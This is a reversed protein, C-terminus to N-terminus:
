EGKEFIDGLGIIRISDDSRGDGDDMVEPNELLEGTLRCKEGSDLAECYMEYDYELTADNNGEPQAPSIGTFIFHSCCSNMILEFSVPLHKRVTRGISELIIIYKPQDNDKLHLLVSDALVRYLRGERVAVKYYLTKLLCEMWTADRRKSSIGYKKALSKILVPTLSSNRYSPITYIESINKLADRLCCHEMASVLFSFAEIANHLRFISGGLARVSIDYVARGRPTISFVACEPDESRKVYKALGLRVLKLMSRGPIFSSKVNWFLMSLFHCSSDNGHMRKIAELAGKPYMRYVSAEVAARALAQPGTIKLPKSHYEGYSVYLGCDVVFKVDFYEDLLTLGDESLLFIISRGREPTRPGLMRYLWRGNVLYFCVDNRPMGASSNRLSGNPSTDERLSETLLGHAADSSSFVGMRIQLLNNCKGGKKGIVLTSLYESAARSGAFVVIDGPEEENCIMNIKHAAWSIRCDPEKPLYIIRSENAPVIVTFKYKWKLLLQMSAHCGVGWYDIVIVHTLSDERHPLSIFHDYCLVKSHGALYHNKPVVIMLDRKEMEINQIIDMVTLSDLEQRGTRGLHKAVKYRKNMFYETLSKVDLAFGSAGISRPCRPRNKSGLKTKDSYKVRPYKPIVIEHVADGNYDGYASTTKSRMETEAGMRYIIEGPMWEAERPDSSM